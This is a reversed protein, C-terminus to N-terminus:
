SAANLVSLCKGVVKSFEESGVPQNIFATAGKELVKAIYSDDTNGATMIIVPLHKYREDARLYDLLALGDMYPMSIDSIILDISNKALVEIAKQGHYASLIRHNLRRLMVDLVLHVLTSDDVVLVNAM